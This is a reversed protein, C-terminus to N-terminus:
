IPMLRPCDRLFAVGHVEGILTEEDDDDDSNDRAPQRAPHHLPATKSQDAIQQDAQDARKDAVPQQRLKANVEPGSNDRQDQVGEDAGNDQQQDQSQHAAAPAASAAPASPQLASPHTSSKAFGMLDAAISLYRQAGGM